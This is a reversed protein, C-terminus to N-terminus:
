NVINITYDLKTWDIGTSKQDNLSVDYAKVSINIQQTSSVLMGSIFQDIVKVKNPAGGAIILGMSRIAQVFPKKNKDGSQIYSAENSVAETALIARAGEVLKEWDDETYNSEIKNDQLKSNEKASGDLTTGVKLSVNRHMALPAVNWEKVIFSSVEVTNGHLKIEYGTIGSLYDIFDSVDLGNSHVNIKKNLDVAEDRPLINIGAGLKRLSEVLSLSGVYTIKDHSAFDSYDVERIFTQSRGTNLRAEDKIKEFRSEHKSVNSTCGSLVFFISVIIINIIKM